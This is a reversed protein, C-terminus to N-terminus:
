CPLTVKHCAGSQTGPCLWSEAISRFAALKHERIPEQDLHELWSRDLMQLACPGYTCIRITRTRSEDQLRGLVEELLKGRFPAYMFFVPGEVITVYHSLLRQWVSVKYGRRWGQTILSLCDRMGDQYSRIREVMEVLARHLKWVDHGEDVPLRVRLLGRM